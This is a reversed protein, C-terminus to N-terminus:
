IIAVDSSTYKLSGERPPFSIFTVAGPVLGVAIELGIELM